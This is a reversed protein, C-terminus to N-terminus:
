HSVVAKEEEEINQLVNDADKPYPVSLSKYQFIVVSM